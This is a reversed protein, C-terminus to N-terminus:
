GIGRAIVRDSAIEISVITGGKKSAPAPLLDPARERLEREIAPWQAHLVAGLIIFFIASLIKGLCGFM